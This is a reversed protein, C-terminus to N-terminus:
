RVASIGIFRANKNQLTFDAANVTGDLNGDTNSYPAPISQESQYKLYDAYNIIANQEYDGAYLAYTNVGLQILQSSGFVQVPSVTFDYAFNNPLMIPVASMVPAHNRHRVVIYYSGTNTTNRLVVGEGGEPAVITGNALLLGAARDTILNYDAASRIEILVWDVTNDPLATAQEIGPYNWPPQNFPQQLPIQGAALLNTNMAAATTNYAGELWIKVKARLCETTFSALAYNSYAENCYSRVRLEYRTCALLNTLTLNNATTTLTSWAPEGLPRYSVEYNVGAIPLWLLQTQLYATNIALLNQPVAPTTISVNLTAADSEYLNRNIQRVTVTGPTTGWQVTISSSNTPNSLITGGQVSWCFTHNAAAPVSYVATSGACVTAPGSIVPTAPKLYEYLFQATHEQIYVAADPDIWVEHGADFLHLENMVGVDNCRGAIAISGYLAPFLPYSFPAGVDPLVINDNQGHFSIVPADTPSQIFNLDAIAGWLNIVLDPTGSINYPPQGLNNGSCEVCGLNPWSNFLGGTYTVNMLPSAAREAESVYAAHLASVGGASNGGAYVYNTDIGYTAANLKLFRIAAKLDQAARYVARIATNTNAPNFGLRYDISAVVYGRSALANCFDVLQPQQKWGLLFAGGFAMVIAPRKTLTDADPLYLDLVLQKNYTSNESVYPPYILAPANGYSINETRTVTFTQSLYRNNTCSEQAVMGGMAGFLFFCTFLFGFIYSKYMM